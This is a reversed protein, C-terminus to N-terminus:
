AHTRTTQSQSQKKDPQTGKGDLAWKKRVWSGLNPWGLRYWGATTLVVAGAGLEEDYATREQEQGETMFANASSTLFHEATQPENYPAPGATASRYSRNATRAERSQQRREINNRFDTGQEIDTTDTTDTTDRTDCPKSHTCATCGANAPRLGPDGPGASSVESRM